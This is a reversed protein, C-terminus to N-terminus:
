NESFSRLELCIYVSSEHFGFNLTHYVSLNNVIKVFRKNIRIYYYFNYKNFTM